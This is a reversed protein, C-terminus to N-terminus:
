FRWDVWKSIFVDCEKMLELVKQKDGPKGMDLHLSRKGLQVDPVPGEDILPSNVRVVTAGLAALLCGARPGLLVRSMELVKVGHLIGYDTPTAMRAWAVPAWGSASTFQIVPWTQALQGHPSNKFDTETQGVITATANLKIIQSELDASNWTLIKSEVASFYEKRGQETELKPVLEEIEPKSFGLCDLLKQPTDAPRTYFVIHKGDRCEYTHNTLSRWLRLPDVYGLTTALLGLSEPTSLDDITYSFHRTLSGTAHNMDVKSAQTRGLREKSILNCLVGIATNIGSVLETAKFPSPVFVEPAPILRTEKVLEAAADLEDAPLIQKLYRLAVERAATDM